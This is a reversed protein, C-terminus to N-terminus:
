EETIEIRNVDALMDKRIILKYTGMAKDFVGSLEEGNLRFTRKGATEKGPFSSDGAQSQRYEVVLKKGQYVAKYTFGSYPCGAAPCIVLEDYGAMFGLVYRVITKFLVNSSGTQWDQMSEGDINLEPNYGYSNPMVFPSCSLHEHTFPVIKMIQQWARQGEGLMFLSMIAFTTAHIYSAGNEATGPPLKYIRGVGKVDRGFAPTFTRYGYKSDLADYATLMEKKMDLIDNMGGLVWFAYSSLGYRSEGDPDCFSGVFYSRKDGWGHVIRKEAATDQEISESKCVVEPTDRNKEGPGEKEIIANQLLGKELRNKCDEYRRIRDECGGVRKLLEIMDTLNRYVQLSVMVSVGNGFKKDKDLSVGLGDIADNWDGFLIKICGTDEDQNALLYGMVRIMHDLVSGRENSRVVTGAAEDTIEIYGCSEELFAMDGTLKLYSIICDIVWCGQDIFERLDLRPMAGPASPLSYQRPCRGNTAVYDLAELMKEAARKPSLYIYGELAQFVDRIGIMSNPSLQVFGKILSCFEVQTSLTSMFPNLIRSDAATFESDAATATTRSCEQGLGRKQLEMFSAEFDYKDADLERCSRLNDPASNGDPKAQENCDDWGAAMMRKVDSDDKGAAVFMLKAEYCIGAGADLTFELLDGAVANETFSCVKSGMVGDGSVMKVNHLSNHTGGRYANGSVTEDASVFRAGEGLLLRRNIVGINTVSETRTRDENVTFVFSNLRRQRNGPADELHEADSNKAEHKEGDLGSEDGGCDVVRGTRFWKDESSPSISNRLYPDLYSSLKLQKQTDGMNVLETDFVISKDPLVSVTVRSRLDGFGAFYMVKRKGFVTFRAIEGADDGSGDLVPVPLLSVPKGDDQAAFFAAKPDGGGEARLFVSFLGDNAHMYGSSYAWFNFGDEGYPYREDGDDRPICLIEGNELAFVTDSFSREGKELKEKYVDFYFDIEHVKM